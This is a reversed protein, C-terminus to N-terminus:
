EAQEKMAAQVTERIGIMKSETYRWLEADPRLAEVEARLRNIEQHALSLSDQANWNMYKDDM